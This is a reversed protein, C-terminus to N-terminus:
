EKHGSQLKKWTDGLAKAFHDDVSAETKTFISINSSSTPSAPPTQASSAAAAALGTEAKVRIIAPMTPTVSPTATQNPTPTPTPTPIPTPTVVSGGTGNHAGYAPPPPTSYRPPTHHPTDLIRKLGVVTEVVQGSSTAAATGPGLLGMGVGIGTASPPPSPPTQSRNLTLSLPLPEEQPPPLETQPSETASRQLPPSNMMPLVAKPLTPGLQHFPHSTTAAAVVTSTPSAMLVTGYGLPSVQQKSSGSPSPTPTPTPTPSKKSFLAAYNEGLSRRFHEDIDCIAVDSSHAAELPERKPPAQTIVSPRSNATYLTGPLPERYPPPPSARLQQQHIKLSGSTVSMDIPSDMDRDRERERERDRDGSGGDHVQYEAARQRRERRWKTTPLEKSTVRMEKHSQQQQQQRYLQHHMAAAQQLDRWPQWLLSNSSNPDATPQLHQPQHLSVSHLPFAPQLQQEHFFMSPPPQGHGQYAALRQTAALAAAAQAMERATSTPSSATSSTASSTSPGSSCSAASTSVTSSASSSSASAAAALREIEKIRNYYNQEFANLICLYEM